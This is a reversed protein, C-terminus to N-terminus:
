ASNSRKITKRIREQCAATQSSSPNEMLVETLRREGRVIRDLATPLRALFIRRCKWCRKSKKAALVSISPKVTDPSMVYLTQLKGTIFVFVSQMVSCIPCFWDVFHGDRKCSWCLFSEEEGLSDWIEVIVAYDKSVFHKLKRKSKRTM